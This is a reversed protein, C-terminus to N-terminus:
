KELVPVDGLKVALAQLYMEIYLTPTMFLRFMLRFFPNPIQGHETLTLRCGTDEPVLEFEWQGSFPGDEDAIARVLRRPPESAVTELLLPYGRRDTERWVTRGRDDAVPEVKKIEPHWTPTGAFDNIVKWVEEPPQKSRLARAAVHYRPLFCGVLAILAVVGVASGIGVAVWFFIDWITM